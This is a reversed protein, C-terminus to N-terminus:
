FPAVNSGEQNILNLEETAEYISINAYIKDGEKAPKHIIKIVVQRNLFLELDIRTADFPVGCAIALQKLKKLGIENNMNFYDRIVMGVGDDEGSLLTFKFLIDRTTGEDTHRIEYSQVLATYKGVPPLKYSLDVDELDVDLWTPM